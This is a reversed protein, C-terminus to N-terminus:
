YIVSYNGGTFIAGFTASDNRMIAGSLFVGVTAITDVADRSHGYFGVHGLRREYATDKPIRFKVSQGSRLISTSSSSSATPYATYTITDSFLIETITSDAHFIITQAGSSPAANITFKYVKEWELGIAIATSKVDSSTPATTKDKTCSAALLIVALFLIINKM